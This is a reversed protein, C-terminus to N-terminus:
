KLRTRRFVEFVRVLPAFHASRTGRVFGSWGEESLVDSVMFVAAGRVGRVKSVAFLASAEMEVTLIGMKSYRLLEELSERYPADMTWTPGIRFPLGEEKMGKKLSRKLDEDPNVFVSNPLYHHSTGEDRLARSCLIVDGLDPTVLGGATGLILFETSGLTALDEVAIATVPAGIPLKAVVIDEEPTVYTKSNVLWFREDRKLGERRTLARLLAWDYILVAKQPARVKTRGYRSKVESASTIIPTFGHKEGSKPFTV